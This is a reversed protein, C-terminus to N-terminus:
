NNSKKPSIYHFNCNSVFISLYKLVETVCILKLYISNFATFDYGRLHDIGVSLSVTRKCPKQLDDASVKEDASANATACLHSKCLFAYLNVATDASRTVRCDLCKKRIVEAIVGIDLAFMVIVLMAVTSVTAAVVTATRMVATSM